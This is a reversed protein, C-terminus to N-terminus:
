SIKTSLQRTPNCRSAAALLASLGSPRSHKSMGRSSVRREGGAGSSEGTRRSLGLEALSRWM